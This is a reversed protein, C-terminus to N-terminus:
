DVIINRGDIRVKVRRLKNLSEVAHSAPENRMASFHVRYNASKRNHFIVGLNYWRGLQRLVDVLPQDNFYFVGNV